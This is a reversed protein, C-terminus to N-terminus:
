KNVAANFEDDSVLGRSYQKKVEISIKSSGLLLLLTDKQRSEAAEKIAANDRDSPDVRHDALMLQITELRNNSCAVIIARNHNDAPNVRPNALLLQVLGTHGFGCAYEIPRNRRVAPNVRPDALLLKITDFYETISCGNMFVTLICYNDRHSPDIDPHKLLFRVLEVNCHEVADIFLNNTIDFLPILLELVGSTSNFLLRPDNRPIVVSPHSLLWKVIEVRGKKAAETLALYGGNTSRVRKDGLLM